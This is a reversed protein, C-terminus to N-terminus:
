SEVNDSQRNLTPLCVLLYHYSKYKLSGRHSFQHRSPTEIGTLLQHSLMKHMFAGLSIYLFNCMNITLDRKM